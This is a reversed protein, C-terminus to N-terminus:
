MIFHEIYLRASNENDAVSSFSLNMKMKIREITFFSPHHYKAFVKKADSSFMKLLLATIGTETFKKFSKRNIPTKNVQTFFTNDHAHMGTWILSCFCCCWYNVVNSPTDCRHALSELKFQKDEGWKCFSFKAINNIWFEDYLVHCM